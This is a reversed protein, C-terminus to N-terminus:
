RKNIFDKYVTKLLGPLMNTNFLANTSNACEYTCRCKTNKIWKRNNAAVNNKNSVIDSIKQEKINGYVNDLIECPKLDGNEMIVYSLNGASCSTTFKDFKATNLIIKKQNKERAKLVSNMFFGYKNKNRIKDYESIANEYGDLLYKELKPGNLSHYRLLNISISTPNFENQIDSILGPFLSHNQHQVTIVINLYLRPYVEQIVKLYEITEKLKKYSNPGRIEDHMKEPGDISFFLIVNGRTLRQLVYLIGEFTRKTYWGNTPFSFFKPRLKNQIKLVLEKFDKRIFVEGGTISYWLFPAMAKTKSIMEDGEIEGPDKSNLTEKYFCHDCRLNCRATVYQILQVPYKSKIIARKLCILYDWMESCGSLLKKITFQVRSLIHGLVQFSVGIGIILSGKFSERFNEFKLLDKFLFGNLFMTFFSIFIFNYNFISLSLFFYPFLLLFSKIPINFGVKKFYEKNNLIYITSQFSRSFQELIFNKFNYKKLHLVLFKDSMIVIGKFLNVRVNLDVDEYCDLSENFKGIKNFFSKNIIFNASSFKTTDKDQKKLRFTIFKSLADSIFGGAEKQSYFGSIIKKEALTINEIFEMLNDTPLCDSDLFFLYEKTAKDSGFNRACAANFNVKPFFNVNKYKTFDLDSIGVVIIDEFFKDVMLLVQKLNECNKTPIVLSINNINM